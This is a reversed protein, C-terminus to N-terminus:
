EPDANEEEIEKKGWLYIQSGSASLYFNKSPHASISHVTQGPVHPLLNSVQGSVMEWCYINGDASGSLIHSDKHNICSEVFYEKTKHGTYESLLEGSNKDMLKVTEDSCSVVICQSDNTLSACIIPGSFFM